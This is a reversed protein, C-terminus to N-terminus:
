REPALAAAAAPKDRRLAAFAVIGLIVAFWLTCLRTVITAAVAAPRDLGHAWEVLLLTMSAETVLLGGPLFSLAGAVTTAAYILTALGLPVDAGPFGRCIVAFGICECLWAAIGLATAWALPRPRVLAGMHRYADYLRPAIRGVRPIRAVLAIVGGALRRSSLVALGAGTVVAAAVVMSRAVGYAAVGVIGLIVLAVLDTVREAVVVPATREVPAGAAERLLVAKVLEGLKGPTVSMAFGAVFVQLSTKRPAEVGVARLYLEWRWFRIVYNGLALLLAAVVAGPALHALRDGLKSVDAYISFGAFVAVAVLAVLLLRRWVKPM